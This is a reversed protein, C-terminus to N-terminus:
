HVWVPQNASWIEYSNWLTGEHAGEGGRCGNNQSFKLTVEGTIEIRSESTTTYYIPGLEETTPPIKIVCIGNTIKMEKGSPCVIGMSGESKTLGTMVGARFTYTCGEATMTALKGELECGGFVPAVSITESEAKFKEGFKFEVLCM